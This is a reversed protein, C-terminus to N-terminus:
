RGPGIGQTCGGEGMGERIGEEVDDGWIADTLYYGGVGILFGAINGAIPVESGAAAFFLGTALAGGGASVTSRSMRAAYDIRTYEQDDFAMELGTVLPATVVAVGTSAGFRGITSASGANVGMGVLRNTGWNYAFDEAIVSVASSGGGIAADKMYHVEQGESARLADGALSAGAGLAGAAGVGAWMRPGVRVRRLGQEEFFAEPQNMFESMNRASAHAPDSLDIITGDRKTYRLEVGGLAQQHIDIPVNICNQGGAPCFNPMGKRQAQRDAAAIVADYTARRAEYQRWEEATASASPPEPATPPSFRYEKGQMGAQQHVMLKILEAADLPTGDQRVIMVSGKGWHPQEKGSQPPEKGSQPPEEGLHPQEKGSHLSSGWVEGGYGFVFDNAYSGPTGVNLVARPEGTKPTVANKAHQLFPARFGRTFMRDNLISVDVVHHGEWLIGTTGNPLGLGPRGLFGLAGVGEPGGSMMPQMIFPSSVASGAANSSSSQSLPLFVREPGGSSILGPMSRADNLLETAGPTYTITQTGLANGGGLAPPMGFSFPDNRGARSWFNPGFGYGPSALQPSRGWLANMGLPDSPDFLLPTLTRRRTSPSLGITTSMPGNPDLNAFYSAADLVPVNNRALFQEFQSRMLYTTSDSQFAGAVTTGPIRRVVVQTGAGAELAYLEEPVHLLGPQALWVQGGRIRRRRETSLRRMLNAYDYWIGEETRNHQSLYVRARNLQFLLGENSLSSEVVGCPGADRASADAASAAINAANTVANSPVTADSGGPSRQITPTGSKPSPSTLPLPSRQIREEEECAACKRQITPQDPSRKTQVDGTQQIVHTLEHALLHSGSTSHPNFKGAGFFINEGHTFAQAGLDRNMQVSDQDTHIRVRDFNYGIRSEMLGKVSGPLPNGGNQKSTLQAELGTSSASEHSTGPPESKQQIHAAKSQISHTIPKRQLQEQECKDCKRQVATSTHPPTNLSLNSVSTVQDAVRDAEQEYMDDPANVTLKAQVPLSKSFFPSRKLFLPMGAEKEVSSSPSIDSQPSASHSQKKPETKSLYTRSM